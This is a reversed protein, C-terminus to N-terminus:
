LSSNINILYIANMDFGAIAFVKGWNLFGEVFTNGLVTVM